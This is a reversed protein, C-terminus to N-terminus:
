EGNETAVERVASKKQMVRKALALGAQFLERSLRRLRNRMTRRFLYVTTDFTTRNTFLRKHPTIGVGHNVLSPRRHQYLDELLLYYLVTGPSFAGYDAAYATQEFQLVDGRQCGIVFACAKGGCKLLYARLCGLRALSKLNDRYLATEELCRGLNHFQWSREAVSLAAAYFADIEDEREVRQCELAGAGHERLKRVRRKLTNRTRKQKGELFSALSDGPELELYVWERGELRRPDVFCKRSHNERSYLYTTTFSEVPLSPFFVCDCWSLHDMIGDFLLRFLAPDQNVLPEGGSVTASKLEISGLRRKRIQFPISLKWFVIPCVGVTRGAADRIVFVSDERAPATQRRHEYLTPSTFVSNLPHVLSMLSEWEQRLGADGLAQEPTLVDLTYPNAIPSISATEGIVLPADDTARIRM